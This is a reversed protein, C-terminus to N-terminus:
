KLLIPIATFAREFSLSGILEKVVFFVRAESVINYEQLAVREPNYIRIRRLENRLSQKLQKFNKRM